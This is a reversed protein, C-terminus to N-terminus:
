GHLYIRIGGRAKTSMPGCVDTHVLELIETARIGKGPFSRKTMKGKLCSECQSIDELVLSSLPGDEILRPIRKLNIHGLRMHWLLTENTSPSKRKNLNSDIQTTNYVFPTTPTLCYLHGHMSGSCVVNGNRM